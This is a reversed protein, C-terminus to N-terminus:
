RAGVQIQRTAEETGGATGCRGTSNVTYFTQAGVPTSACTVNASCRGLNGGPPFTIALVAPCVAPGGGLPFLSAMTTQAGSEAAYFARLNLMENGITVNSTATLNALSAGLLGMIVIIIIFVPLSAAGQQKKPHPRLGQKHELQNLCM